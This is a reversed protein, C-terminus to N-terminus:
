RGWGASGGVRVASWVVDRQFGPVGIDDMAQRLIGDAETRSYPAARSVGHRGHWVGTGKTIYLFDHIVAAQAWPGDPPYLSWVPRPISALDTVFGAPVTITEGDRVQYAIPRQLAWLTRGDKLAPHTKDQLVVLVLKDTFAAHGRVDALVASVGVLALALACFLGATLLRALGM